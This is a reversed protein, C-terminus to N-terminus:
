PLSYRWSHLLKSSISPSLCSAPTDTSFNTLASTSGMAALFNHIHPEGQLASIPNPKLPLFTTGENQETPWPDKLPQSHYLHTDNAIDVVQSHCSDRTKILTQQGTSIDGMPNRTPIAELAAMWEAAEIDADSQEISPISSAVLLTTSLDRQYGPDYVPMPIQSGERTVGLLSSASSQGDMSSLEACQLHNHTFHTYQGEFSAPRYDYPPHLSPALVKSLEPDCCQLPSLM